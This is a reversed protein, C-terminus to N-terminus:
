GRSDRVARNTDTLALIITGSIFLVIVSLIAQRFSGTRGVVIGFLLPGMWSTGRESIEYIGFFSAEYGRPIMRAFLSRSLAQSGGLVIALVVAMGWAQATTHLFGYAYIVVGSWLILSIMIANKAGLVAAIKEFVLAGAFAVFQTMLFIQLVFRLDDGASRQEMTFLEQSLFTSAELLVTQIGDNYLMYGILYKLTQPLRRLERFTESIEAVGRTLYRQGPPLARLPERSRLRGFTVLAFGGWWVGASLLSMRVALGATIGLRGASQLLLFNLALLLGGGLYGMAFGRSSVRDIQDESCIERLLANYLVISAGFALNAVIFLVGGLWYVDATVFFLFCTATAGVYCLAMFLHKRHHSYDAMAGVLPLIFVQLLVSMSICISFFSKATITGLIGLSLVTGNEGVAAQALSTVYPELLAGAVTTSFASNAWDYMMWGFIERPANITPATKV